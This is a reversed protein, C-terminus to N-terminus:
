PVLIVKGFNKRAEIYAHAEGVKALPFEIDVIPQLWGDEVGKLLESLWLNVKKSEHWLHGVNVGFTSKNANMLSIPNFLPLKLLLKIMGLKSRSGESSASSVGFFGVRGTSRLVKYNKKWYPGGVPDLILEVGFGDTEEKVRKEWDETRYDICVDVGMKTLMEHKKQSATGIIRAGINKAIQIAAVGVGGGANHILITEDKTLSGMVVILQWATIYNVPIAAAQAYSLSNPKESLQHKKVLVHSAYGRFRTLAIVDKGIWSSDGDSGVAIVVGSVEYGVVLPFPPADPYMGKRALIDAFNIGSGKVEVLYEDAKPTPTPKEVIDFIDPAGAKPIIAEIM